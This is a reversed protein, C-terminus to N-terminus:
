LYSDLSRLRWHATLRREQFLTHGTQTHRDSAWLYFSLKQWSLLLAHYVNLESRNSHGTRVYSQSAFSNLGRQSLMQLTATILYTTVKNCLPAASVTLNSNTYNIDLCDLFFLNESFCASSIQFLCKPTGTVNLKQLHSLNRPKVKCEQAPMPIHVDLKPIANQLHKGWQRM